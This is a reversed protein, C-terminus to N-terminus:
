PEVKRAVRSGVFGGGALLLTWGAALQMPPVPAPITALLVAGVVALVFTLVTM